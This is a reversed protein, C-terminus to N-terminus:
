VRPHDSHSNGWHCDLAQYQVFDNISEVHYFLRPVFRYYLWYVLKFSGMPGRSADEFREFARLSDTRQSFWIWKAQALCSGICFALPARTITGLISVVTNISFFLEWQELPRNNGYILLAILAILACCSLILAAIDLKWGYGNKDKALPKNDRKKNPLKLQSGDKSTQFNGPVESLYEGNSPTPLPSSSLKHYTGTAHAASRDYGGSYTLDDLHINYASPTSLRSSESTNLLPEMIDALVSPITLDSCCLPNTSLFDNRFGLERLSVSFRAPM